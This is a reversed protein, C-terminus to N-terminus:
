IKCANTQCYGTNASVHKIPQNSDKRLIWDELGITLSRLMVDLILESAEQYVISRNPRVHKTISLFEGDTKASHKQMTVSSAM